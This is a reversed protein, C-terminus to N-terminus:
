INPKMLSTKFKNLNKQISVAPHEAAAIGDGGSGGTDIFRPIGAVFQMVLFRDSGGLLGVEPNVCLLFNM